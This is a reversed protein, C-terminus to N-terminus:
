KCAAAAAAAADSLQTIKLVANGSQKSLHDFFFLSFLQKSSTSMLIMTLISYYVSWLVTVNDWLNSFVNQACSLMSETDLSM